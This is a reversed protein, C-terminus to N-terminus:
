EPYTAHLRFFTAPNTAPLFFENEPPTAPIGNSLIAFGAGTLSLNTSAYLTYTVGTASPWYLLTDITNDDILSTMAFVSASNTPDTGLKFEQYNTFHDNDPDDNAACATPGGFHETAWWDPIGDHDTDSDAVVVTLTVDNTGIVNAARFTFEATGPIPSAFM